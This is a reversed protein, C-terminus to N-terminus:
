LNTLTEGRHDSGAPVVYKAGLRCDKLTSQRNVVCHNCMICNQVHSMDDIQTGEMIVSNIIKVNNGIRVNEGVISRKLSCKDGIRVHDMLLCGAGITSKSGIESPVCAHNSPLLHSFEASALDKSIESFAEICDVKTCYKDKPVLYVSCLAKPLAKSDSPPLCAADPGGGVCAHSMEDILDELRSQTWEGFVKGKSPDPGLTKGDESIADSSTSLHLGDPAGDGRRSEADHTRALPAAAEQPTGSAGGEAQGREERGEGDMGRTRGERADQFQMRVLSPLLHDSISAMRASDGRSSAEDLLGKFVASDFVYLETNVLDSHLTLHRVSRLVKMPVQVQRARRPRRSESGPGGPPGAGTADRAGFGGSEASSWLCIHSSDTDLGIVTSGPKAKKQAPKAPAAAATAAQIQEERSRALVATATAGRLRHAAVVSALQIDTVLNGRLVVVTEAYEFEIGLGLSLAEVVIQATALGEGVPVVHPRLTLPKM